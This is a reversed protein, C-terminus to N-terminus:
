EPLLRTRYFQNGSQIPRSDIFRIIGNSCVSEGVWRWHILDDSAEIAYSSNEYGSFDLSFGRDTLRASGKSDARLRPLLQSPIAEYAEDSVGRQLQVTSGLNLWPSSEALEPTDLVDCVEQWTQNGRTRAIADGIVVTQKDGARMTDAEFSVIPLSQILDADSSTNIVVDVGNLGKRWKNPGDANISLLTNPNKTNLLRLLSDMLLRDHRPAARQASDADWGGLWNRWTAPYVDASKLYLTQWPTGRHVKGLWGFALPGHGGVDWDSPSYVLPDKYASGFPPALDPTPGGLSSAPPYGGWPEFRRNLRGINGLVNVSGNPRERQVGDSSSESELDQRLFHIFPDNAQWTLYQSARRTPTFPVEMVSNTNVYNPFHIPLLGCFARFADIQKTRNAGSAQAAGYNNWDAINIVGLSALVQNLVGLPPVIPSDSGGIRNTQWFIGDSPLGLGAPSTVGLTLEASLDRAGALGSIAVYDIVRGTVHDVMVLQLANNVGFNFQPIRFDGTQEFGRFINVGINTNATFYPASAAPGPNFRYVSNPLVVVNTMLPIFFSAANPARLSSGYGAWSDASVSSFSAVSLQSTIQNGRPDFWSDNTYSLETKLDCAVFIDVARSYSSPYPNWLEVAMVNSIGVMFMQNTATPRAAATPKRLQLRRTVQAVSQMAFENFSPFGKRAGIIWPVDYLNDDPRLAALHEPNTVDLPKSQWNTGDTEEAWDTIFVNGLEARFVPRLVTPLFPYEPGGRDARNTSADYLNAAVQLVRRVDPTFVFSGNTYVPINASDFSHGSAVLLRSSMNTFFEVANTSYVWAPVQRDPKPAGFASAAGFFQVLLAGLLTAVLVVM